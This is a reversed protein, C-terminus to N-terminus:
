AFPQHQHTAIICPMNQHSPALCFVLTVSGWTLCTLPATDIHPAAMSGTVLCHFLPIIKLSFNKSTDASTFTSYFCPRIPTTAHTLHELCILSEKQPTLQLQILSYSRSTMNTTSRQQVHAHLCQENTCSFWLTHQVTVSVLWRHPPPSRHSLTLQYSIHLCICESLPSYLNHTYRNIEM